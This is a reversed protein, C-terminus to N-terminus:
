DSPSSALTVGSADGMERRPRADVAAVEPVGQAACPGTHGASHKIIDADENLRRVGLLLPLALAARGVFPIAIDLTGLVGGGITGVLMAAGTVISGQAFVGDLDGQYGTANLGDVLWAEVAGSYFTFGLGMVVSALCFLLLTGGMFSMAVYALTGLSLVVVSLLFSARRGRTDALV